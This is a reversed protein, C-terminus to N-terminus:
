GSMRRLSTVMRELEWLDEFTSARRDLARLEPLVFAHELLAELLGRPTTLRAHM